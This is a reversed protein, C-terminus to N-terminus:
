LDELFRNIHNKSANIVGLAQRGSTKSQGELTQTIGAIRTQIEEFLQETTLHSLKAKKAQTSIEADTQGCGCDLNSM